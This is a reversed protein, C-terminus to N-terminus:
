SVVLLLTSWQVLYQVGRCCPTAGWGWLTSGGTRRGRVARAATIVMGVVGLALMVFTVIVGVVGLALMVFTVLM